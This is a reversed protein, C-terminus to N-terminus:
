ISGYSFLSRQPSELSGNGLMRKVPPELERTALSSSWCQRPLTLSQSVASDHNRRTGSRGSLLPYDPRPKRRLRFRGASRDFHDRVASKQEIMLRSASSKNSPQSYYSAAPFIGKSERISCDIGRM